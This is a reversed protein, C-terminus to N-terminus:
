IDVSGVYDAEVVYREQKQGFTNCTSITLMTENTDFSVLAEEASVLDINRVKYLYKKDESYVYIEDGAKLNQINNFTKYAQNIVRSFSTSHGFLFMNGDGPTGSGPYRVAGSKLEEDLVVINRSLPNSISSDVGANPISVRIATDTAQNIININNEKKSNGPSVVDILTVMIFSLIFLLGAIELGRRTISEM